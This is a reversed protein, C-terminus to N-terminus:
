RVSQMAKEMPKFAEKAVNAYMGGIKTMQHMYEDYSRKAYSTQIEIAQEISKASALKEFTATGDEFSRKTYDSFEAAIAQWGKNWEGFMNMAATMNDQSLKQMEEFNNMMLAVKRM